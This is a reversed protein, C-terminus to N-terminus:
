NKIYITYITNFLYGYLGNLRYLKYGDYLEMIDVYM